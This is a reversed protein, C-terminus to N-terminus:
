YVRLGNFRTILRVYVKRIQGNPLLVNLTGNDGHRPHRNVKGEDTTPHPDLKKAPDMAERSPLQVHDLQLWEGGTHNTRDLTVTKISFRPMQGRVKARMAQLMAGRSIHPETTM